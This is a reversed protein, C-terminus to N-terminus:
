ELSARITLYANDRVVERVDLNLITGEPVAGTLGGLDISPLDFSAMGEVSSLLEPLLAGRILELIGEDNGEFFGENTVIEFILPDIEGLVLRAQLVGDENKEFVMDIEAEAQLWLVLHVALGGLTFSADVFLDGIQLINPGECSNFVPPLLPVVKLDLDDIPFGDFLDAADGPGLELSLTGGEWVAYLLQNILSDHLGIVMPAPPPFSISTFPRCGRHGISGLSPHPRLAQASAAIGDLRLQLREPSIDVGKAVINVNVTNPPQGSVPSPVDFSQQINLVDFLGGLADGLQEEVLAAFLVELASVLETEILGIALTIVAQLLGTPDPIVVNLGDMTVTTNLAEARTQGGVVSIVVDTDLTVRASNASGPLPIPDQACGDCPAFLTIIAKMDVLEARLHLKGTQLLLDIASSTFEVGTFDLTCAGNVCPFSALPNSVLAGFDLNDIILKVLAALDDMAEQDMVLVAATAVGDTELTRGQMPFFETSKEVARTVTTSLGSTDTAVVDILNLGYALPLEHSFAGGAPGIDVAVGAVLLSELADLNDGVTGAVTVSTAVDHVEGRDPSTVTLTPPTQDIILPASASMGTDHAATATVTYHGELTFRVRDLDDGMLIHHGEPAIALDRVDFPETAVNGHADVGVGQVHIARQTPYSREPPDFTLAMGVPENPEVVLTATGYASSPVDNTECTLQFSGAVTGTVRGGAVTLGSPTSSVFRGHGTDNGHADAVFCIAAADEGAKITAPSVEMVTTVPPGPTVELTAPSPDLVEGWVELCAVALTGARTARIEMGTVTVGAPPEVVASFSAGTVVDGLYNFGVCTVTATDGATISTPEVFTEVAVVRDPDPAQTGEDDGCATAGLAVTAVTAVVGALGAGWPRLRVAAGAPAHPRRRQIDQLRSMIDV